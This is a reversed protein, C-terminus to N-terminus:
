RASNSLELQSTHLTTFLTCDPHTFPSLSACRCVATVRARDSRELALAYIVGIASNLISLNPVNSCKMIPSVVNVFRGTRRCLYRAHFRSLIFRSSFRAANRAFIRELFQSRSPLLESDCFVHCQLHVERWGAWDTQPRGFSEM